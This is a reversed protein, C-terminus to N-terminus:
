CFFMLIFIAAFIAVIAILAQEGSTRQQPAPLPTFPRAPQFQAAHPQMQSPQLPRGCQPCFAAMQPLGRGCGPCFFNQTQQQPQPRPPPAVPRAPPPAVPRAPPQYPPPQPKPQPPLEASEMWRHPKFGEGQTPPTAYPRQDAAKPSEAAPKPVPTACEPCIVLTSLLERGCGSCIVTRPM